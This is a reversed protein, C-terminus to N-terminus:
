LLLIQMLNDPIYNKIGVGKFICLTISKLYELDPRLASTCLGWLSYSVSIASIAWRNISDWLILTIICHISSGAFCALCHCTLHISLYLVLAFDFTLYLRVCQLVVWLLVFSLCKSLCTHWQLNCSLRIHMGSCFHCWWTDWLFLDSLCHHFCVYIYDTSLM